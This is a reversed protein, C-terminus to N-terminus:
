QFSKLMDMVKNNVKYRYMDPVDSFDRFSSNSSNLWMLEEPALINHVCNYMWPINNSKLAKLWEGHYATYEEPSLDLTDTGIETMLFSVKYKDACDMFGKLYSSTFYDADLVKEPSDINQLTGDENIKIAPLQENEVYVGYLSHVPITIAAKGEQEISVALISAEAQPKIVLQKTGDSFEATASPGDYLFEDKVPKYIVEDDALIKAATNYYEYYVTIKGKSFENESKLTLEGSDENVYGPLYQMPWAADFKIGWNEFRREDVTYIHTHLSLCCGIEALKEPVQKAVDNAIIIRKDNYKWIDKAVPALVEYYREMDGNEVQPEALLEFSLVNEPIDAYRKALVDWYSHFAEQMDKDSFIQGNSQVNEQEWSSYKKGPMGTISLMIHINYKLGWSILEDLQELESEDIMGSDDGPKSLFSMSYLVRACNFGNNHFYELEKETFYASGATYRSWESNTQNVSIKNELIFGTWYPLDSKSAAPLTCNKLLEDTIIEKNYSGAESIPIYSEEKKQIDTMAIKQPINAEPEDEVNKPTPSITVQDKRITQDNKPSACAGFSLIIVFLIAIGTAVAGPKM